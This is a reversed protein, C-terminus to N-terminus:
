FPFWEGLVLAALPAARHHGPALLHLEEEESFNFVEGFVERLADAGSKRLVEVDVFMSTQLVQENNDLNMVSLPM